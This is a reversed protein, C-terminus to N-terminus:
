AKKRIKELGLTLGPSFGPFLTANWPRSFGGEEVTAGANKQLSM